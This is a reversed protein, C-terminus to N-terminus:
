DILVLDLIENSEFVCYEFRDEESKLDQPAEERSVIIALQQGTVKDLVGSFSARIYFGEHEHSKMSVTVRVKQKRAAIDQLHVCKIADLLSALEKNKGIDKDKSKYKDKYKITTTDM